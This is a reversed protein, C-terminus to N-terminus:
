NPQPDSLFCKFAIFDDKDLSSLPKGREFLAWNILREVSQRYSRFTASTADYQALWLKIADLDTNAKIDCIEPSMRFAGRVGNLTPPAYLRDLPSIRVLQTPDYEPPGREM